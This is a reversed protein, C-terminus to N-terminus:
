QCGRTASRYLYFPTLRPSLLHSYKNKKKRKKNKNKGNIERRVNGKVHHDHHHVATSYPLTGCWVAMAPLTSHVNGSPQNAHCPMAYLPAQFLITGCVRVQVYTVASVRRTSAKLTAKKKKTRIEKREREGPVENEVDTARTRATCIRIRTPTYSRGIPNFLGHLRSCPPSDTMMVLTM